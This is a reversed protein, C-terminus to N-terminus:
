RSRLIGQVSQAPLTHTLIAGPFLAVTAKCLIASNIQEALAIRRRQDLYKRVPSKELDRYALLVSVSEIEKMYMSRSYPNTLEMCTAHLSQIYTLAAHYVANTSSGAGSAASGASSASSPAPSAARSIGSTALLTQHPLDSTPSGTGNTSLQQQQAPQAPANAARVSEIFEQIQLNLSLHSPDLSTPNAPLVRRQGSEDGRAPAKLTLVKRATSKPGQLSRGKASSSALVGPFHANCSEVAARIRGALIHDRIETRHRNTLVCKAPLDPGVLSAGRRLLVSLVDEESLDTDGQPADLDTQPAKGKSSSRAASPTAGGQADSMHADDDEEDATSQLSPRVQADRSQSASTEGETDMASDDRSLPPAALPHSSGNSSNGNRKGNPAPGVSGALSANTKTSSLLGSLASSGEAASSAGMGDHAFAVATDIYCHHVLYNLVLKRISSASLEEDRQEQLSASSSPKDTM